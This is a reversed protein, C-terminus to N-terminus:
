GAKCYNAPFNGEVGGLEGVWWDDLTDTKKVIKIRDGERFSLDGEGQGNFAYQAVVFEELCKSVVRKPPPPPPKKKAGLFSSGSTTTNISSTSVVTSATSPPRKDFYDSRPRMSNPSVAPTLQQGLRSATTFDTPALNNSIVYNNGMSPRPTLVPSPHSSLSTTSPIRNPRPPAIGENASTLGSSSRRPGNVMLAPTLSPDSRGRDQLSPDDPLKMPQRVAKGIAICTISEFERKVPEYGASWVAVVEDMPPPPSPFGHEECYTHLTTYYLGLFRTQLAVVSDILLPIISFTATVMPPLTERLHADAAHFDESVRALEAELKALSADEKPTRGLKRQLKTTKDQIKEFDLRKNERKKITKRMPDIYERASSAPKVVRAEILELEELLDAKLETYVEKLRLAQELQLEPTPVALRGLGESAGVIPDWLGDYEAAVGLQASSINIWSDRWSKAADIIKALVRDVDEYQCM